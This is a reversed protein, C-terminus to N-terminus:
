AGETQRKRIDLVIEAARLLKPSRSTRCTELLLRDDLQDLNHLRLENLYESTDASPVLYILDLLAKEPTAVFAHQGSVIEIQRYGHFWAPKVHKYVLEALPNSQAGPRGTTVSTVVPVSEPILGHYALASQLSVYSASRASNAVLFPHPRARAYPPALAYLGRRIQILRGDRVWRSLQRRVDAADHRGTLLVGSNFLPETGVTQLLDRWKM